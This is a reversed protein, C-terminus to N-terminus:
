ENRQAALATGVEVSLLSLKDIAEVDTSEGSLTQGLRVLEEGKEHLKTDTADTLQTGVFIALVAMEHLERTNMGSQMRWIGGLDTLRQADERTVM